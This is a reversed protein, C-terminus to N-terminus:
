KREGSQPTQQAPPQQKDGQGRDERQPAPQNTPGQASSKLTAIAAAAEESNNTERPSTPLPPTLIVKEGAKLGSNIKIVRNNDPGLEVTRPAMDKANAVYVTPKNAIRVVAQIPVYIASPFQEIFIEARCTMGTRIDHTDGTLDIKTKYVKLDPNLWVSQGDPLPAIKFVTGQFSRGPLADVTVVAPLGEKIRKLNTEHVKVEATVSDATPLYLMQERERVGQGVGLPPEDWDRPVYIVMADVPSYIKTKKLQDELKAQKGKEKEFEAEKARLDATSQVVAASAKRRTRELTMSTQDVNSKLEALKRKHTFNTLLDLNSRALKYDLDSRSKALRDSELETQSIYKEAFLKESWNLREKNRELEENALTIKSRADDELNPYEGELYKQLDDRAFQYDLLAKAVDSDAQNQTVALNERANVFSAEANQVRIEQDVLNDKINSSDLEVILEGKKVEKGETAVFVISTQGEVEDSIVVQDKASIIGAETVSITLPGQEVEYIPTNEPIASNDASTRFVLAALTAVAIVCFGVILATRFRSALGKPMENDSM